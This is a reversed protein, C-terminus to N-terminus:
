NNRMETLDLRKILEKVASNKDIMRELPTKPTQIWSVPYGKAPDIFGGALDYQQATQTTKTAQSELFDALRIKILFDALDLGRARQEETANRELIDSTTFGFQNGKEEWRDYANLDPFLYVKRGELCKVRDATLYSLSGTAMWLFKPFYPTAILCTKPSEVIAVPKGPNSKLLHEGFLCSIKREQQNYQKAWAESRLISHVWTTLAGDENKVTHGAIDFPKVQGAVINGFQDIFWFVCGGPYYKSTGIAYRNILDVVTSRDFLSHLYTVLSNQEYARLSSKFVEQPIFIKKLPACQLERPQKISADPMKWYACSVERDCRGFEDSLYEGTSTDRYRVFRKKNCAPCIFKKGSKDLSSSFSGSNSFSSVPTNNYKRM